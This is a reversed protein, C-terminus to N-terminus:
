EVALRRFRQCGFAFFVASFVILMLCCLGIRLLNPNPSNLIQDYAILSWAHPIALSVQRMMEPLWERPMFCGSLGALTIVLLNAYASVQADTRVLVATLLGLTTAALSTCVIVPLLLWPQVGWSMGFLLKGFLFLLLGQVISVILFPVTKGILLQGIGIPAAHLRRLTGNAAESIFSRAMINILFFAFMVTYAPVIVQYVMGGFDAQATNATEREIPKSQQTTLAKRAQLFTRALPDKNVVHPVIVRVVEGFM